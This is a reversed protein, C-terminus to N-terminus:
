WEFVFRAGQDSREPYLRGDSAEAVASAIALGMGTGGHDRRTTFFPTMIRDLNAPDIGHGDDQIVLRPGAPDYALTVQEAGHQRANAVLQSLAIYAQEAELPLIAEHPADVVLRIEPEVEALRPVILQLETEQEGAPMSARAFARLHELLSNMRLGQARISKLLTTKREAPLHAGATELLEAAGIIATTPSKLEHTVHATYTEVMRSREDLRRAMSLVSGGLQALERIGYHDLPEPLPKSREAVAQSQIALKHIPASLLRWFLAGLFAAGILMIFAVLLLTDREQHLFKRLNTPTRSLMVAGVIRDAVIVPQAVFVRYHTNRSVTNVPHYEGLDARLRLSSRDNGALAMEIEDVHALSGSGDGSAAIIHGRYDTALYGALTRKKANSALVSLERSIASYPKLVTGDDDRPEAPPPLVKAETSTLVPELANYRQELRARQAESLRRGFDPAPLHAAFALAFAEAFLAAQVQLSRETERVFQNDILRASLVGIIPLAILLSCIIGVVLALSPRWKKRVTLRQM